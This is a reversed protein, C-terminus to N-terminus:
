MWAHLAVRMNNMGSSSRGSPALPQSTIWGSLSMAAHLGTNAISWPRSAIERKFRLLRILPRSIDTTSNQPFTLLGPLTDYSGDELRPSEVRLAYGRSDGSTGPFPLAGAGSKWKAYAANAVFDYAVQKNEIVNIEAWFAHNADSGIGFTGGAANQLKWESRYFGVETPAIFEISLDVMTGPPVEFPLNVSAAAGMSAGGAFVLSYATTWTCSGVNNLRWIKTFPAGSLYNAGDPVSIDAVFEAADCTDAFASPVTQVFLLGVVTTILFFKRWSM